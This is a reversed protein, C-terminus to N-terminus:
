TLGPRRRDQKGGRGAIGMHGEREDEQVVRHNGPIEKRGVPTRGCSDRVVARATFDENRVETRIADAYDGVRCVRDHRRDWDPSSGSVDSVVGAFVLDKHRVEVILGHAHDGACCPGHDRRNGYLGSREAECVIGPPSFDEYRVEQCIRHAHNGIRRVRDDGRDRNPAPRAEQGIVGAFM